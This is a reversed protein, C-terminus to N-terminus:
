SYDIDEIVPLRSPKSGRKRGVVVVVSVVCVVALVTLVIVLAGVSIGIIAGVSLGRRREGSSDTNEMRDTDTNNSPQEELIPTVHPTISDTTTTATDVTLSASNDWQVVGNVALVCMVEYGDLRADIESWVANLTHTLRSSSGDDDGYSSMSIEVDFCQDRESCSSVETATISCNFCEISDYPSHPPRIQFSITVSEEDNTEYGTSAKCQFHTRDGVEM